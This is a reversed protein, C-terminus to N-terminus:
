IIKEIKKRLLSFIKEEEKSMKKFESLRKHDHGLLHLFGHIFIKIVKKNFELNSIDTPTNMYEYSIIIDGIYLNKELNIENEFPFSLIDTSKNKNRFKKNLSRIKKNDALLVTLYAKKKLFQYKKPFFKFLKNFLFQPKHFKKKWQKSDIVVEVNIM